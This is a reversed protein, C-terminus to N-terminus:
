VKSKVIINDKVYGIINEKYVALVDQLVSIIEDDPINILSAPKKIIFYPNELVIQNVVKSYTGTSEVEEDFRNFIVEINEGKYHLIYISNGTYYEPDRINYGDLRTKEREKYIFWSNRERDITWLFAAYGKELDRSSIRRIDQLKYNKIDENSAYETVFGKQGIVPGTPYDKKTKKIATPKKKKKFFNFMNKEWNYKIFQKIKAYITPSPLEIYKDM